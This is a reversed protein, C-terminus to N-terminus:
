LNKRLSEWVKPDRRSLRELVPEVLIRSRLPITAAFAELANAKIIATPEDGERDMMQLTPSLGGGLFPQKIYGIKNSEGGGEYVTMEQRCIDHCACCQGYKCPRDFMMVEQVKSMKAVKAHQRCCYGYMQASQQNEACNEEEKEKEIREKRKHEGMQLKNWKYNMTEMNGIPKTM